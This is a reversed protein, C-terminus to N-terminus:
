LPTSRKKNRVHIVLERQGLAAGVLRGLRYYGPLGIWPLLRRLVADTRPGFMPEYRNESPVGGAADILNNITRFNWSYLHRHVDPQRPVMAHREKPLVLILTGGPALYNLLCRLTDLPHEVHELVHRCLVLEFHGAPIQQPRAYTAIGRQECLRLAAPSVDYGVARELGAINQGAGCGYELVNGLPKPFRGFYMRQLCWARREYLAADDLVRGMVQDYYQQDYHATTGGNM